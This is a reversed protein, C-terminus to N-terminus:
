KDPKAVNAIMILSAAQGTDPNLPERLETLQYSKKQFLKFWSGLTRFYWPAPDSFAESFGEWSGVRWGDRYPHHGCSSVPHLTQIVLIGDTSLLSPAVEFIHEVSIKGILSFNCVLVDYEDALNHASIEEYAMVRFDGGGRKNAERVLEPVVDLGTVSLGSRSLERGLWGEGCGVDLVKRSPTSLHASGTMVADIIAQNTVLKRSKIQEQQIATIWPAANKIWSEIIKKDKLSEM